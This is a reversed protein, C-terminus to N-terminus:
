GSFVYLTPLTLIKKQNKTWRLVFHEPYAITAPRQGDDDTLKKAWRLVFDCECM